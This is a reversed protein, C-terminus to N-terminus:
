SGLDFYKASLIKKSLANQVYVIVALNNKNISDPRAKWGSFRLNARWSPHKTPEDLYSKIGAEVKSIDIVERITQKKDANFKVGEAGNVLNRVVYIHKAVGNAGTYDISKEVLAIQTLLNEPKENSLAEVNLNINVMESQLEVSGEIKAESQESFYKDLSYKYITFRNKTVFDPGGGVLQEVGDLFVTPTGFNGGYWLYKDFSSPNTMPDPGPIHVHYELIALADKPYYEAMLDFANDAAVCPPCEAGTFLEAVVVKNSKNKRTFHGPEFKKLDNKLQDVKQNITEKTINNKQSIREVAKSIKNTEPFIMGVLYSNFSDDEKGLREYTQGLLFWFDIDWPAAFDEISKLEILAAENNGMASYVFALNMKFVSVNEISTKENISSVAEDAYKKATPLDINVAALCAAVSSKAELTKELNLYATIADNIKESKFKKRETESSKEKTIWDNLYEVAKEHNGLIIAKSINKYADINNGASKEYRALNMVYESNKENGILAEKQIAVADNIKGQEFSVFAKTNLILSLRRSKKERASAVAKNIFSDASDLAIKKEALQMAFSNYISEKSAEPIKNLYTNANAIASDANSLQVFASFSQSLSPIFYNSSPFDMRFKALAEVKEKPDSLQLIKRYIEQSVDQAYSFKFAAFILIANFIFFAKSKNVM